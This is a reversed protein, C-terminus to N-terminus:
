VHSAGNIAYSEALGWMILQEDRTWFTLLHEWPLFGYLLGIRMMRVVTWVAAKGSKLHVILNNWIMMMSVMNGNRIGNKKFEIMQGTMHYVTGDMNGETKSVRLGWPMIKSLFMYIPRCSAWDYILMSTSKENSPQLVYTHIRTWEM